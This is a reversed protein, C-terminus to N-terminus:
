RGLEDEFVVVEANYGECLSDGTASPQVLGLPDYLKSIESLVHRKTFPQEEAAEPWGKFMFQDNNTDWYVGLAKIGGNHGSEDIKMLEEREEEPVCELVTTSNASWKRIPFGGAILLEKVELLRRGAEEETDAGSLM